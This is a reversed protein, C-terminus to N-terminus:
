SDVEELGASRDHQGKAGRPKMRAADAALNGHVALNFTHHVRVTGMQPEAESNREGKAEGAAISLRGRRMLGSWRRRSCRRLRCGLGLVVARDDDGKAVAQSCAVAGIGAVTIGVKELLIEVGFAKVVAHHIGADAAVRRLVADFPQVIHEGQLRGEDDDGEAPIITKAAQGDIACALVEVLDNGGQLMRSCLDYEAADGQGRVVSRIVDALEVPDVREQSLLIVHGQERKQKLVDVAGCAAHLGVTNVGGWLAILLYRAVQQRQDNGQQM